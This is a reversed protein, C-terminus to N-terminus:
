SRRCRRSFRDRRHPSRRRDRRRSARDASRRRDNGTRYTTPSSPTSASGRAHVKKLTRAPRPSRGSRRCWRRQWPRARTRPSPRARRFPRSQRRTPNKRRRRRDQKRAVPSPTHREPPCRSESAHRRWRGALEAFHAADGSPSQHGRLSHLPDDCRRALEMADIRCDAGADFIWSASRRHATRRRSCSHARPDSARVPARPRAHSGSDGLEVAFGIARRCNRRGRPRARDHCSSVM